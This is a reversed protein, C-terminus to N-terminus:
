WHPGPSAPTGSLKTFLTTALSAALINVLNNGLLVAGILKEGDETLKLATEAGKAGRASLRHLTARSVATLATESGSFFASMVLLCFIAAATWWIAPDM